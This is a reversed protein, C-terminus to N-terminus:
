LLLVRFLGTRRLMILAVVAPWTLAYASGYNNTYAFPAAPRYIPNLSRSSFEATHLHVMDRIFPNGSIGGPLLLAMPTTMSLRPVVGGLWGLFVLSLWFAGLPALLPSLDSRERAAAYVYTCVVLATIYFSLRLGFTMLTSVASLQVGSVVVLGLFVLWFASGLDSSCVDSS